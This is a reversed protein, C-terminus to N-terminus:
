LPLPLRRMTGPTSRDRLRSSGSWHRLSDPSSSGVQLVGKAAWRAVLVRVAVVRARAARARARAALVRAAFVALVAVRARAAAVRARAVAVRARAAMVRAAAAREM